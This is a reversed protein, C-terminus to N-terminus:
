SETLNSGRGDLAIRETDRVGAVYELDLPM